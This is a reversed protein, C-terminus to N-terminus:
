QGHSFSSRMDARESSVLEVFEFTGRAGEALKAYVVEGKRVEEATRDDPAPANNIGYRLRVFDGRFPDRPDIPATPLWVENGYARIYERHGAMYTLVGAQLAILAYFGVKRM